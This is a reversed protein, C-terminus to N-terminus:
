RKGTLHAEIAGVADRDLIKSGRALLTLFYEQRGRATFVDYLAKELHGPEHHPRYYTMADEIHVLRVIAELCAVLAELPELWFDGPSPVCRQQRRRCNLEIRYAVARTYHFNEPESWRDLLAKGTDDREALHARHRTFKKCLGTIEDGCSGINRTSSRVLMAARQTIRRLDCLHVAAAYCSHLAELIQDTAGIKQTSSVQGRIYEPITVYILNWDAPPQEMLVNFWVGPPNHRSVLTLYWFAEEANQPDVPFASVFATIIESSRVDWSKLALQTTCWARLADCQYDAWM